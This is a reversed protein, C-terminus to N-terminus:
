RIWCMMLGNGAEGGEDFRVTLGEDVEGEVNGGLVVGGRRSGEVVRDLGKGEGVKGGRGATGLGLRTSGV